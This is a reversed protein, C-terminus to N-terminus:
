EDISSKCECQLANQFGLTTANHSRTYLQEFPISPKAAAM